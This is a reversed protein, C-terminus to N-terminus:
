QDGGTAKAIVHERQQEEHSELFSQARSVALGFGLAMGDALQPDDDDKRCRVALDVAARYGVLLDSILDDVSCEKM